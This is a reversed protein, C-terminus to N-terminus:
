EVVKVIENNKLKLWLDHVTEKFIPHCYDRAIDLLPKLVFSREHLRPHPIILEEQEIIEDDYFLLDLDINRPANTETRRRGLKKEIGLLFKLLLPPTLTTEVKVVQNYFHPHQKMGVPKTEYIPSEKLLTCKKRLAARAETLYKKRDGQNSGLAIYAFSM